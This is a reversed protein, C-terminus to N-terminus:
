RAPSAATSTARASRWRRCSCCASRGAAAAPDRGAVLGDIMTTDVSLPLHPGHQEIAAVPLVAITRSRDLQRSSAPPSTRGSASRHRAMRIADDYRVQMRRGIAVTAIVAAAFGVTKPNLSEGLMLAAILVTFFPQLLQVQGVRAVGGAALGRYWFFFGIWMSFLSVYLFGLWSSAQVEALPVFSAWGDLLSWAAVGLTM